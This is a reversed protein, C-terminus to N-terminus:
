RARVDGALFSAVLPQVEGAFEEFFGHRGTPHRWLRAGPIRGALLAANEPPVMRDAAGHLVLTPATISPLLDWADHRASARLHARQEQPTMTPDGLLPSQEATGPWADTYFLAHLAARRRGADPDGLSRRVDTASAVAHRGGPATCALVLRSVAHPSDVALLQAVRGGMSTGYVAAPGTDLAALVAAADAAFGRTSWAGVPGRSGGTGRQDFTVVRYAAEFGRRLGSWWLHSNAQGPLLLLPPGDERGTVQVALAFGDPLVVSTQM